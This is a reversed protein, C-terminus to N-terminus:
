LYLLTSLFKECVLCHRSLNTRMKIRWFLNHGDPSLSTKFIQYFSDRLGLFEDLYSLKKCCIRFILMDFINSKSIGICDLVLNMRSIM